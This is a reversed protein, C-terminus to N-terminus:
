NARCPWVSYVVVSSLWAPGCFFFCDELVFSLPSAQNTRTARNQFNILATAHKQAHTLMASKTGYSRTTCAHLPGLKLSLRTWPNLYSYAKLSVVLCTKSASPAYNKILTGINVRFYLLITYSTTQKSHANVWFDMVRSTGMEFSRVFSRVQVFLLSVLQIIYVWNRGNEMARWISIRLVEPISIELFPHYTLSLLLWSRTIKGKEVDKWCELHNVAGIFWYFWIGSNRKHIRDLPKGPCYEM